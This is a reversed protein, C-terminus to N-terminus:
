ATTCDNLPGTIPTDSKNNTNQPGCPFGAPLNSCGPNANPTVQTEYYMSTPQPTVLPAGNAGENDVRGAALMAAYGSKLFSQNLLADSNYFHGALEDPSWLLGRAAVTQRLRAPEVGVFFFTKDKNPYLKPIFIPGGLYFGYYNQHQDNKILSGQATSNFFPDNHRFTVGGHFQSTGGKSSQIIVGTGTRGYKASLGSTIASTEQVLRGSLNAGSGPYSAQVVDSGDILIPSSGPFSGGINISAGPVNYGTYPNPNESDIGGPSFPDGNVGPILLVAELSSREPYPLNEVLEHDVVTSVDSTNSLLDSESTVTVTRSESGISLTVNIAAAAATTVIIKDVLAKEFGKATVEVSYTGANLSLVNYLGAGDTITRYRVGTEMSTVLVGAKPVALGHADAVRGNISGQSTQALGTSSPLLLAFVPLLSTTPLFHTLAAVAVKLRSRNM